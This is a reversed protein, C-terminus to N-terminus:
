PSDRLVEIGCKRSWWINSRAKPLDFSDNKWLGRARATALINVNQALFITYRASGPPPNQHTPPRGECHNTHRLGSHGAGYCCPSVVMFSYAPM